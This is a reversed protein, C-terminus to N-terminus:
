QPNRCLWFNALEEDVASRSRARDYDVCLWDNGTEGYGFIRFNDAYVKVGGRKRGIEQSRAASWDANKFLDARYSFIFIKFKAARLENFPLERKLPKSFKHIIRNQISCDYTAWGNEDVEGSLIAWANQFFSKDLSDPGIKFDDSIIQYHFGSDSNTLRKKSTNEEKKNEDDLFILPTFLESIENKLRTINGETWSETTNELILKTGTPTSPNVKKIDYKTPIKDVDSGPIFSPWDFKATLENKIGNGAESISSLILKKALKRCAFRGIGKRGSKKRKYKPSEPKEESFITAIRMWGKKFSEEDMGIGNDQITIKGGPNLIKHLTITVETADADYSNKILEALAIARNTVLKEGIEFLLRSDVEFFVENEQAM